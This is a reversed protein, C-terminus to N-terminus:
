RGFNEEIWRQAEQRTKFARFYETPGFWPIYAAFWQRGKTSYIAAYQGSGRTGRWEGKIYLKWKWASMPVVTLIFVRGRGGRYGFRNQSEAMRQPYTGRRAGSWYDNTRARNPDGKTAARSPYSGTERQDRDVARDAASVM